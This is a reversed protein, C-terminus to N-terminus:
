IAKMMFSLFLCFQQTVNLYRFAHVRMLKAAKKDRFHWLGFCKKNGHSKWIQQQKCQLTEVLLIPWNVFTAQQNMRNFLKTQM